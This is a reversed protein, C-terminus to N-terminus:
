LVLVTSAATDAAFQPQLTRQRLPSVLRVGFASPVACMKVARVLETFERLEGENLDSVAWYNM